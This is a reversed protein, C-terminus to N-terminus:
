LCSCHHSFYPKRQRLVKLQINADIGIWYQKHPERWKTRLKGLQEEAEPSLIVLGVTDYM